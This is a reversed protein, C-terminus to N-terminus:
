KFFEEFYDYEAEAETKKKEASPASQEPTTPKSNYVPPAYRQQEREARERAQRQQRVARVHRRHLVRYRIVLFLYLLFFVVVVAIGIKVAPLSLTEAVQSKLYQWHSLEVSSAAVLSVTGYSVGDSYVSVEGLVDGATIPATLETGELQSYIVVSRTFDSDSVDNAVLATVASAPRLSVSNAGSGMAVDVITVTETTSLIERYSYNNFIYDYLTITDAFNTYGTAGSETTYPQGGFVLCLLNIGDKSATSVLCYGAASTYGTKIGAAYEYYYGSGYIGETGILANSNNLTREASMNTAPITVTATNCITMFLEHDAAASAILALDTATTYHNDDPMGNTNAFHTGTCGLEEARTNMLEVFSDISGGIYEAIVNCAENASAVMACYLLNELTMAEGAMIGVTSSDSTLGYSVNSGATVEDYIGAEGAEIAEIALLVTMIKTTSAPYIREDANKSYYVGGTDTNILLATASSIEPEDLALASQPSLMGILIGLAMVLAAFRPLRSISIDSFLISKKMNLELLIHHM